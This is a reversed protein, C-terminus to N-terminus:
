TVINALNKTYKAQGADYIKFRKLELAYERESLKHDDATRCELRNFVKNGDTWQWGLTVKELEFGLNLLFKGTDYRLDVFNIIKGKFSTIKVIYNLLKSFGGIVSTNIKSSLRIVHMENKKSLIKYSLGLILEGNYQLGFQIGTSYGMLHNDNFFDEGSFAIIECKRAHIINSTKGLANNIISKVIEGQQRIETERFQILRKGYQEFLERRKFHHWKEKNLESHWFLGDTEMYIDESLKFDPRVHIKKPFFKPKTNYENIGLLKSTYKELGRGSPPPIQRNPHRSGRCIVNSPLAWWEGYESDIFRAKCTSTKYTSFDISVNPNLKKNIGDISLKRNTAGDPHGSGRMVETPLAWWEGLNPDIFKAPTHTNIYTLVDMTIYPRKKQIREIIRDPPIILKKNLRKPHGKGRLVNYVYAWWEGYESDIFRAKHRYGNFTSEDIKLNVDITNLREIVQRLSIKKIV